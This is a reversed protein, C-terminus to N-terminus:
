NLSLLVQEMVLKVNINQSLLVQSKKFSDVLGGMQRLSLNSKATIRNEKNTLKDLIVDRWIVSWTELTEFIKEASRTNVGSKALAEPTSEKFLDEIEKVRKYFPSNVIKEWRDLEFSFSNKLDSDECLDVARGPKGWSLNASEKAIIKDYGLGVLGAEIENNNVLPFFVMQCRSRITALLKSDDDTLLFFVRKEGAEELMKLLANGSEENLLEAEDIIVIQYNGFWSKNGLREKVKRSQAISIEKKLKNTKEDVQRTLYYFDPYSDLKSEEIKLMKASLYRAVTRKGVKDRGVFCYSQSLTNNAILKEFFSIIKSHGIIPM